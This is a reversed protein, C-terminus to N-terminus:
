RRLCRFELVPHLEIANKAVGAQGHDFDFFAVGTVAARACGRVARRASQMQARRVSKARSTCNVVPTEAIMTEGHDKLVLHFDQDAEPRIAIVSALM